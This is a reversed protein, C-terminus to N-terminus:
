EGLKSHSKNHTLCTLQRELEYKVPLLHSSFFGQYSCDKTLRIINEIQQLAFIIKIEKNM